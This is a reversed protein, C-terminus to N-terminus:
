SFRAKLFAAVDCNFKKKRIAVDASQRCKGGFEDTAINGDYYGARVVDVTDTIKTIPESGILFPSTACSLRGPPLRVPTLKKVFWISLLRGWLNLQNTHKQVGVIREEAILQLIQVIRRTCKAYFNLDFACAFLIFDGIGKLCERLLMSACHNDTGIGIKETPTRQKDIRRHLEPYGCNIFPPLKRFFAAQHTVPGIQLVREPLGTSKNGADEFAFAGGIQGDHLRGLKFEYYIQFSCSAEVYCHWGTQRRPCIVYKLLTIDAKPGYRVDSTAGCM